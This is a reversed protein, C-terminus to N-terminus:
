ETMQLHIYSLRREFEDYSLDSVVKIFKTEGPLIDFFNEPFTYSNGESVLMLNKCLNRSYIEILFGDEKQMIYKRIDPMPLKLNKPKESYYIDSDIVKENKVITVYLLANNKNQLLPIKDLPIRTLVRSGNSPMKVSYSRNWLSKGSFDMLNVRLIVDSGVIDSIGIIELEKENNVVRVIQNKFADRVFYHMAKWRGYYDIGSWSAVPWCDNLQWYLSGMCYPMASRHAEIATKIAEAQLLQGVYLQDEFVAPQNYSHGM